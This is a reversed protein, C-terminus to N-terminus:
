YGQRRELISKPDVLFKLIQLLKHRYVLNKWHFDIGVEKLQIGLNVLHWFVELNTAHYVNVGQLSSHVITPIKQKYYHFSPLPFCYLKPKTKKQSNKIKFIIKTPKHEEEENPVFHKYQRNALKTITKVLTKDM